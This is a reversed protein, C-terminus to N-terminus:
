EGCGLLLSLTINFLLVKFYSVVNCPITTAFIYIVSIGVSNKPLVLSPGLFIFCKCGYKILAVVIHEGADLSVYRAGPHELTSAAMGLSGAIVSLISFSVHAFYAVLPRSVADCSEPKSSRSAASQASLRIYLLIVSFVPVVFFLAPPIAQMISYVIGDASLLHYYSFFPRRHCSRRGEM